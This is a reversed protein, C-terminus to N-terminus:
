SVVTDFRASAFELAQADGVRLEVELGLEHARRRALALMAPSLDIGTLRVGPPYFPLNRGTGVGIELTDGRARECAWRRGGGFLLMEAVAMATDYRAAM